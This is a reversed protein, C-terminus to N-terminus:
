PTGTPKSETKGFCYLTKATRVYLRGNAIAPTAHCNEGLDSASLLDWEPEASVVAVKGEVDLLYIRGEAAVPSAYYGSGHKLRARKHIEGTAPDMSTLIGGQNIFFLVDRYVLISAINPVLKRYTWLVRPKTQGDVQDLQIAVLGGGGIFGAFAKDLEAPEVIGDGNGSHEDVWKATR